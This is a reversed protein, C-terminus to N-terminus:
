KKMNAWYKEAREQAEAIQETTMKKALEDRLRLADLSLVNERTNGADASANSIAAALSYWKYSEVFNQPVGKGEKFCNGLMYLGQFEGQKAAKEYWNISEKKDEKVAWGSSYFCGVQVQAKPHDLEAAKFFFDFSKDLDSKVGDGSQFCLGLSFYANALQKPELNYSKVENKKEIAKLLWLVSESSNKATGIGDHFMGALLIQSQSYGQNSSKTIWKRAKEFDQEAGSKGSLYLLGLEFQATASGAEADKSYAMQLLKGPSPPPASSAEKQGSVALPALPVCAILAILLRNTSTTM